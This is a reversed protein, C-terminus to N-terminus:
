PLDLRFSFPSSSIPAHRVPWRHPAELVKDIARDIEERFEQSARTSRERYWRAAQEAEEVAGAHITFTPRPTM